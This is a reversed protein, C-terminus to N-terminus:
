RRGARKRKKSKSGHKNKFNKKGASDRPRRFDGSKRGHEPKKETPHEYRKGIEGVRVNLRDLLTKNLGEGYVDVRAAIVTKAAIARAIKGRQWRPASHVMEHQFLLGHKPARSGTKLSRFLAKEAGLVQITSAPMAAVRQLSGARRLIKAGVTHGLIASMNPAHADMQSEVYEVLKKRLRDLDVIQGAISQVISLGTDSINGGRSNSAALLIMEIKSEPFAINKFVDQTLADRRGGAVVQAYGSISDIINELEPFHLGYWERMVSSLTNAAKDIEELAIAAQIIHLDPSGSFETIKSSSLGLSFDRLKELAERADKAFGADVIIQPKTAQVEEIEDEEMMQVDVTSKKLLVLLSEDSSKVVTPIESLYRVLGDPETEKKKIALYEDVPDKFPFTKELRGENFVAVGLETLIM